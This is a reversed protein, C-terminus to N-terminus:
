VLSRDLGNGSTDAEQTQILERWGENTRLKSAYVGCVRIEVRGIECCHASEMQIGGLKTAGNAETSWENEREPFM